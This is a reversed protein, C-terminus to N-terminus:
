KFMSIKAITEWDPSSQRLTILKVVSRLSVERFQQYNNEIFAVIDMIQNGPLHNLMGDKIVQRIRILCDRETRLNLDIYYSRSMLAQLHPSVKHGYRILSVFDLNTIFIITGEYLFSKPMIEGDNDHFITKSAWSIYRESTTDTATKLINLSVDDSFIGDADDFVVIQGKHRYNYLIPFIGGAKAHGKVVTTLQRDPDYINLKQEIGYSKGLGPAGSVIFSRVSGMISADTMKNLVDFRERLRYEIAEDTEYTM